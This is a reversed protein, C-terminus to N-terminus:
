IDSIDGQQVIHAIHDLFSIMLEPIELNGPALTRLNLDFVGKRKWSSHSSPATAGTDDNTASKATAPDDIEVKIDGEVSLNTHLALEVEDILHNLALSSITTPDLMSSAPKYVKIFYEMIKRGNKEM